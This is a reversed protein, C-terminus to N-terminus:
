TPQGRTFGARPTLGTPASALGRKEARRRRKYASDYALAAERNRARWSRKAVAEYNQSLSCAPCWGTAHITTVWQGCRPCFDTV